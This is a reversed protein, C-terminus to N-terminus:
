KRARSLQVTQLVKRFVGVDRDMYEPTTRLSFLYNVSPQSPDFANPPGAQTAVIIVTWNDLNVSATASSLGPVRLDVPSPQCPGGAADCGMRLLNPLHKTDDLANYFAFLWISRHRTDEHCDKTSGSGILIGFGHDHETKATPCLSAESPIQLRVGFESNSYVRPAARGRGSLVLILAFCVVARTLRIM